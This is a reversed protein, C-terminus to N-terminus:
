LIIRGEADWAMASHEVWPCRDFAPHLERSDASSVMAEQSDVTLIEGNYNVLNYAHGGVERKAQPNERHVEFQTAMCASSGHGGRQLAERVQDATVERYREGAWQETAELREGDAELGGKPGIQYARGAAEHEVGRWTSEFCRTCDACNVQYAQGTEFDPNIRNVTERPDQFKEVQHPRSMPELYEDPRTQRFERPDTAGHSEVGELPRSEEVESPAGIEASQTASPRTGEECAM